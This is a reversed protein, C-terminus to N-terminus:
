VRPAGGPGRDGVREDVARGHDAGDDVVGGAGRGHSPFAGARHAEGGSRGPRGWPRARSATRPSRPRDGRRRRRDPGIEQADSPCEHGLVEWHPWWPPWTRTMCTWWSRLPAPGITSAWERRPATPSRWGTRFRPTSYRSAVRKAHAPWNARHQNVLVGVVSLCPNYYARVAEVADLLHALGTASYLRSQTVVLVGDAATFANTTLADLAPACDILVLDFPAGDLRRLAEALRMERGPGSTILENRVVALADGGSPALYVGNWATEVVVEDLCYSSSASLVDAMGAQKEELETLSDSLNGQPDLDIVLTRLNRRSAARALHYTTTTKGVGGKQNTISIVLM